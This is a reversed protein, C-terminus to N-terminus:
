GESNLYNGRRELSLTARVCDAERDYHYVRECYHGTLVIGM